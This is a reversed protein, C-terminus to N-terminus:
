ELRERMNQELLKLLYLGKTCNKAVKMKSGAVYLSTPQGLQHGKESLKKLSKVTKIIHKIGLVIDLKHGQLTLSLLSAPQLVDIYLSCGILIKAHGWKSIYGKMRARDEAKMTSDEALTIIHSIYAGFRDIVRQLANHRHTIWRSGQSRMPLDGGKPFGFTEQLDTVIDVLERSKKPSKEYLYYLRLLVDQIENFLISSFSDKCALELRHAYCWAWFLWPLARQMIGKM